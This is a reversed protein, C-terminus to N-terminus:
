QGGGDVYTANTHDAIMGIDGTTYVKNETQVMEDLWGDTVLLTVFSTRQPVLRVSREVWRQRYLIVERDTTIRGNKVAFSETPLGYRYRSLGIESNWDTGVTLDHRAAFDATLQFGEMEGANFEKQTEPTTRTEWLDPGSHLGYLDDAAYAPGSTALLVVLLLAPGAKKISDVSLPLILYLTVAVLFAVFVSVVLQTRVLGHLDIPTRIVLGAGLLGVTLLGASSRYRKSETLLLLVGVSFVCVLLVNYVAGVSLLSLVADSVLPEPVDAGLAVVPAGADTTSAQGQGVVMRVDNVLSQVFVGHLLWYAVSGIVWVALPLAQPRGVGEFGFRDALAPVALLCLVLPAFLVVTLHHTFWLAVVIPSAILLHKLYRGSLIADFWKRHGNGPDVDLRKDYGGGPGGNLLKGGGRGSGVGFRYASLLVVLVLGVSLSQPFFYVSYRHIPGLMTVGLAVCVPLLWDDFLLRALVYAAVVVTIYTIIGTVVLADYESTGSLLSVSGVLTQLGPFLSYLSAEPISRWTGTTTVLETFRVHKPIDGRGFYFDTSLVKTIPDLSFLAVIQSLLWDPSTRESVQLVLLTYGIPLGFIIVDTRVTSSDVFPLLAAMAVAAISLFVVGLVVQGYYPAVRYGNSAQTGRHVYYVVSGFLLGLLVYGSKIGAIPGLLGFVATTVAAAAILLVPFFYQPPPRRVEVSM